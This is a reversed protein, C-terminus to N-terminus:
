VLSVIVGAAVSIVPHFQTKVVALLIALCVRILVARRCVALGYVDAEM